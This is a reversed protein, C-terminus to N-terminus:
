RSGEKGARRERWQDILMYIALGIVGSIICFSHLQSISLVGLFANNHFWPAFPQLDAHMLNDLLVHSFTGLLSSFFAVPWSIPLRAPIELITLAMAALHKGTLAAILALFPAALYTHTIGHLQGEGTLMVTLPQIDMVVQSWGFLMLSFRDQLVSKALMGPGMHLPTFPM